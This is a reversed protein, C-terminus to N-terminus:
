FLLGKVKDAYSRSARVVEGNDMVLDFGHGERYIEKINSRNVITSRHIRLFLEPSLRKEMEGLGFQSLYRTEQTILSSYDGEARVFQIDKVPLALHRNGKPVMIRDPFRHPAEEDRLKQALKGVGEQPQGLRTLLKQIADEFRQRTYPKLLYDVAHFEFADLAYQDYATSFVVLPLEELRALVELGTLGPMQVDLFIIEPHHEQILRLADVGNPAEAVIVLETHNALYERLLKRAPAEDDILIVKQLM